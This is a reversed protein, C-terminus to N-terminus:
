TTAIWSTTRSRGASSPAQFELQYQSREKVLGAAAVSGPAILGGIVLLGTALGLLGTRRGRSVSTRRLSDM